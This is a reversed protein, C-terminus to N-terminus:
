PIISSKHVSPEDLGQFEPPQPPKGTDAAVKDQTIKYSTDYLSADKIDYTMCARSETSSIYALQRTQQKRQSEELERELRIGVIWVHMKQNYRSVSISGLRLKWAEM